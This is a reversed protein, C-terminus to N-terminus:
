LTSQSGLLTEFDLCGTKKTIAYNGREKFSEISYFRPTIRDFKVAIYGECGSKDMFRKLGLVNKKLSLRDKGTTKAELAIVRGPSIALVDPVPLPVSGSGAVRIATWGRKWFLNVLDREFGAGKQYRYRTM